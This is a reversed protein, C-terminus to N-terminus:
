RVAAERHITLAEKLHSQLAKFDNRGSEHGCHVRVEPGILIQLLFPPLIAVRLGM